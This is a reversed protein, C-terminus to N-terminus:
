RAVAEDAYPFRAPAFVPRADCVTVRCGLFRGTQSLVAAFDIAGFILMRPRTAAVHVLVSLREPCTAADGGLTVCATRGARVLAKARDAVAQAVPGDDLTGGVMQGDGLVSM